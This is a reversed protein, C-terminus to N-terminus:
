KTWKINQKENAFVMLDAMTACTTDKKKTHSFEPFTWKFHPMFWM